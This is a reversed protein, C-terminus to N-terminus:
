HRPLCFQTNTRKEYDPFTEIIRDFVGIAEKQVEVITRDNGTANGTTNSTPNKAENEAKLFYLANAKDLLLEGLQEYLDPLFPADSSAAIQNRVLQISADTRRLLETIKQSFQGNAERAQATGLLMGLSILVYGM